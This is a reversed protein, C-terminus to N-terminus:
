LKVILVVGLFVSCAVAPLGADLYRDRTWGTFGEWWKLAEVSMLRDRAIQNERQAHERSVFWAVGFCAGAFAGWLALWSAAFLVGQMLLAYLAHRLNTANM